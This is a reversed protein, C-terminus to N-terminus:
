PTTFDDERLPVWRVVTAIWACSFAAAVLVGWGAGTLGDLHMGIVVGAVLVVTSVIEVISTVGVRGQAQAAATLVRRLSLFAWSVCLIRAVGLAPLYEHGFLIRLAPELIVEVAVVMPVILGVSGLTWLRLSRVAAADPLSALRPLLIAAVGNLMIVSVSTLSAGVAYLGLAYQGLILGVLLQDFGFTDMASLGSFFGRRTFSAVTAGSVRQSTDGTRPRLWVWCLVTGLLLSAVYAMLVAWLQAHQAVLWYVVVIAVYLAMGVTRQLNVRRVNGEGLLLAASLRGTCLLYCVLGGALALLLLHDDARMIVATIGATLLAPLILLLAWTPVLHATVDRAAGNSSAVAHAVAQALSGVAVACVILSVTTILALQGRGHPGLMRAVVPGSAVTLLQVGVGTAAISLLAKMGAPLRGPGSSTM